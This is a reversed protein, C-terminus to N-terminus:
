FDISVVGKVDTGKIFGIFEVADSIVKQRTIFGSSSLILSCPSYM